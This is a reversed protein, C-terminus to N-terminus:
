GEMWGDMCVYMVYMCVYMCVQQASSLGRREFGGANVQSDSAHLSNQNDDADAIGRTEGGAGAAGAGGAAAPAVGKGLVEESTGLFRCVYALIVKAKPGDDNIGRIVGNLFAELQQQRERVFSPNTRGFYKKPPIPPVRFSPSVSRSLNEHLNCFQSYRLEAVAVLTTGNFVEVHFETYDNNILKNSPIAARLSM